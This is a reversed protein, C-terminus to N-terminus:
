DEERKFLLKDGVSLQVTEGDLAEALESGEFGDPDAVDLVAIEEAQDPDWLEGQLMVRVKAM